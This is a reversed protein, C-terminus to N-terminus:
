ALGAGAMPMRQRQRAGIYLFTPNLGSSNDISIRRSSMLANQSQLHKVRIIAEQKQYSAQHGHVQSIRDMWEGVPQRRLPAFLIMFQVTGAGFDVEM